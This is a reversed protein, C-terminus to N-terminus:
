IRPGSDPAQLTETSLRVPGAQSKVTDIEISLLVAVLVPAIVGGFSKPRCTRRLSPVFQILDQLFVLPVWHSPLKAGTAFGLVRAHLLRVLMVAAAAILVLPVVDPRVAAAVVAAIIAISVPNLVFEATYTSPSFSYRIKDWRIQRGVAERVTRNVMVNHVVCPSLSLRYGAQVLAIAMAQDEALCNAFAEFGGVKRLQTIDFRSSVFL